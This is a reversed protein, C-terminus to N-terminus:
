QFPTIFTTIKYTQLDRRLNIHHDRCIVLVGLQRWYNGPTNFIGWPFCYYFGINKIFKCIKRSPIWKYIFSQKMRMICCETAEELVKVAVASLAVQSQTVTVHETSSAPVSYSFAVGNTLWTYLFSRPECLLPDRNASSHVSSFLISWLTITVTIM